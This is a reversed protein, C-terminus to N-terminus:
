SVEFNRAVHPRGHPDPQLALNPFKEAAAQEAKVMDEETCAAMM